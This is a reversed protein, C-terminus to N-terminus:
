SVTEKYKQGIKARCFRCTPARDVHPAGNCVRNCEASNHWAEKKTSMPFYVSLLPISKLAAEEDFLNGARAADNFLYSAQKSEFAQQWPKGARLAELTRSLSKIPRLLGDVVVTQHALPDSAATEAAKEFAKNQRANLDSAAHTVHEPRTKLIGRVQGHGAGEAQRDTGGPASGPRSAQTSLSLSTAPRAQVGAQQVLPDGLSGSQQMSTKTHIDSPAANPPVSNVNRSASKRPDQPRRSMDTQSAASERNDYSRNFNAFAGAQREPVGNSAGTANSSVGESRLGSPPPHSFGSGGGYTRGENIRPQM